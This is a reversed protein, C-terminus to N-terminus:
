LVPVVPCFAEIFSGHTHLARQLIHMVPAFMRAMPADIKAVGDMKGSALSRLLGPQEPLEVIQVEEDSPLKALKKAEALAQDFGGLEDVLKVKLAQEGTWVRGQAIQNVQDVPLHRADSVLKLFYDYTKGLEQDQFIKLQQPTFDSFTDFMEVNAGRSVAGSNLYIKQMAPTLNFKGGLVGISGTITGPEAIIRDAPTAVWYGGSAAYGGMSIVLPKKKACLEVARRILESALVSGGPSDIRFVVARVADDERASKFADVMADSTMGTATPAVLPDFGGAGRQIGGVGYVVAVHDHGAMGGFLSQRAYSTYDQVPHKSGGHNEVRDNFQDEYELRDVLKSKLGMEATLPAQDILARVADPKLNRERAVGNVIQDFMSGVLADDDQRQAPTFDKDTFINFASKYQGAAAFNPTIGLWDLTGRAFFERVRVGVMNFSGQPMMSVDGASAAVIFPLNGSEDDGATELYAATWKGTAAFSRVLEAIEQAQALEMDPDIVKLALGTIRPDKAGRDIANRIFNLGTQQTNLLGLLGTGGRDVVPGDITVVLVSDSQVRHSLYDSIVIILFLILLFVVTRILYRFLRRM